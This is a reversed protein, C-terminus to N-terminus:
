VAMFACLSVECEHPADRQTEPLFEIVRNSIVRSMRSAVIRANTLPLIGNETMEDPMMRASIKVPTIVGASANPPNILVFTTINTAINTIPAPSVFVTRM